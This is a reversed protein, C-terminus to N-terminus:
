RQAARLIVAYICVDIFKNEVSVVEVFQAFCDHFACLSVKEQIM